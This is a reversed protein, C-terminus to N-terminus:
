VFNAAIYNINRSVGKWLQILIHAAIDMLGIRSVGIGVNVQISNCSIEMLQILENHWAQLRSLGTCAQIPSFWILQQNRLEIPGIPVQNFQFITM